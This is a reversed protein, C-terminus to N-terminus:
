KKKGQLAKREAWELVVPAAIFISSYTGTIVGVLMAFSFGKLVPGGFFFLVLVTLFVTLSTIITRSMTENISQNMIDSLKVQRLKKLNERIRDYVVVTDNLSFGLLTLFAALVSLGIEYGFFMFFAWTVLLDHILAIIAGVAFAFEFRWSIYILLLVIVVFASYLAQTRLESGVKPGVVDISRIEFKNGPFAKALDDTVKRQLTQVDESLKMRISYDDVAGLSSVTKVEGVELDTLAARVQGDSVSQEFRILMDLGGRFDISWNVPRIFMAVFGALIIICSVAIAKWRYKVFDVNINHFIQFM